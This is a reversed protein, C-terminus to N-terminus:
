RGVEVVEVVEAVVEVAGEDDTTLVIPEYEPNLPELAVEVHRWGDADATKRSRYRKVTFREGTEPDIQDPTRVLVTRGQRSGTVPSAFLCHAGDPIRPEMSRGVVQAVFMGARLSRGTDVEVWEEDWGDLSEHPDGFGGAAAKLPVLPVCTRYRNERTPTVVRLPPRGAQEADASDDPVAFWSRDGTLRRRLGGRGLYSALRRLHGTMAHEDDLENAPIEVVEYGGSNRLWDRIERDKAATAPNGHLHGSMGDLYICVGKLFDDDPDRYLVDPTTTGLARGLRIQEGRIGDGFGAARLLHRLRTEALNVPLEGEGPSPTPQVAPIDHGFRLRTGWESLSKLAEHRDLRSHYYANRFTQLCDICSSKCDGPCDAVVERAVEVVESFRERLRDLLGSGGPMPDWLLGQVEDRGIEGIVLIQLDEMHMDLIRTAGIRLAELVSYAETPRRCDPLSLADAAIDAYFGIRGPPEGGGCRKGHSERFSRRQAESSLPSVSQGCITCVPYGFSGRGKIAEAAGVNVLRMRVGRRLLLPRDGWRYARGGSHQGLELGYVAVGLQFRLEEDDSIHSTHALDVDCVAMAALAESGLASSAGLTTEKVAEHEASVEYVPMEVHEDTFDRHFRRAVFRHGNAYILNGPVYERLATAPPRPLVFEMAGDMWYPIDAWGVVYGTDLGYGPLFGEAALVSFTVSSDHGEAHSRGGDAGKLRAVLRSCRRFLAEDEGNLTGREERVTNLRAIQDMAWGLRRRLRKVVGELEDGFGDVHGRLADLSVVESDEEPWGQDFVSHVKDAMERCNHRVFERLPGFDFTEKRVIARIAREQHGYLHTIRSPIRAALRPHFLGEGVLTAVEAGQRFPRSLSVYPGRLLPSARTHDLSLLDRMQALLRPDSFPHATLQYRLFSKAVKEIYAVLNLAM